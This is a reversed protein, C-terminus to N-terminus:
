DDEENFILLKDDNITPKDEAFSIKNVQDILDKNKNRCTFLVIILIIISVFILPVVIVFAILIRKNNDDDDENNTNYKTFKFNDQLDYSLYEINEKNKIQLIVQIYSFNFIIDYMDLSLTNGKPQPDYFEKVKQSNVKMSLDADKPKNGEYNGRLIYTLNYKTYDNLPTLKIIYDYLGKSTEKQNVEIKTNKITYKNNYSQDSFTYRFMFFEVKVDSEM